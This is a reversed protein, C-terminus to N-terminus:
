IGAMVLAPDEPQEGGQPLSLAIRSLLAVLRKQNRAGSKSLLSKVQGRVTELAVARRRAIEDPEQGAHLAIAIEAEARTLGFMDILMAVSLGRVPAGLDILAIMAHREERAPRITILQGFDWDDTPVRIATSRRLEIAERIARMFREAVHQPIIPVGAVDHYFGSSRAGSVLKLEGVADALLHTMAM